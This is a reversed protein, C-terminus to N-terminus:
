EPLKIGASDLIECLVDCHGCFTYFTRTTSGNHTIHAELEGCQYCILFDYQGNEDQISIAHRPVFLCATGPGGNAIGEIVLTQIKSLLDPSTVETKGIVAFGQLQIQRPPVGSLKKEPDLGYVECRKTRDLAARAEAPLEKPNSSSFMAQGVFLVVAISIVLAILPPIRRPAFKLEPEHSM